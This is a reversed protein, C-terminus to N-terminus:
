PWSSWFSGSLYAGQSKLAPAAGAPRTRYWYYGGQVEFQRAVTWGITGSANDSEFRYVEREPDRNLAWSYSGSLRVRRGLQRQAQASVVDALTEQGLGYALALSRGYRGSLSGHRFRATLDVSGYGSWGDSSRGVPPRYSGGASLGISWSRGLRRGWSAFASHVPQEPGTTTSAQFAYSLGIASAPGIQHSLTGSTTLYSGDLLVPSDFRVDEYGVRLLLSGRQSVQWALEAAGTLTYTDTLPYQLGSSTLVKSERADSRGYSGRVSASVRRSLRYSGDLGGSYNFRDLDGGSQSRLAAANGTLSFSGRRGRRSFSLGGGGNGQYEDAAVAEPLYRANDTWGGGAYAWMTMSSSAQPHAPPVVAAEPIIRGAITTDLSPGQAEPPAGAPAGSPVGQAAAPSSAVLLCAPLLLFLRPERGARTRTM